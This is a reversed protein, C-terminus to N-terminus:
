NSGRLHTRQVAASQENIRGTCHLYAKTVNVTRVEQTTSSSGEEPGDRETRTELNVLQQIVKSGRFTTEPRLRSCLQLCRKSRATAGASITSPVRGM